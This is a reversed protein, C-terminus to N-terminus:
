PRRGGGGGVAAHFLGANKAAEALSEGGAGRAAVIGALGSRGAADAFAAPKLRADSTVAVGVRRRLLRAGWPKLAGARAVAAVAGGPGEIVLVYGRSVVVTTESWFPALAGLVQWGLQADGMHRQPMVVLDPTDGAAVAEVGLRAGREVEGLGIVSVGAAQAAQALGLRDAIITTGAAVAIGELRAETARRVTDPGITPLDIRMEQGSKPLKVVVGDALAGSNRGRTAALRRLMADTGDAGELALLRGARDAVAAQGADFPGLATLARCATLIDARDGDLAGPGAIPGEPAVLEPAVDAVGRVTLGHREFFAIVMRLITDDGGRLFGLLQPLTRWFLGDPRLGMLNPRRVRGVIVIEQCGAKQFASIMRGIAGWNVWTHPFRAIAPDAEGELAVIHVDRGRARLAEAIEIPIITGGALVGLPTQPGSGTGTAGM